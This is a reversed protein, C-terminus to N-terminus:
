LRQPGDCEQGGDEADEWRALGPLDVAAQRKGGPHHVSVRKREVLVAGVLFGADIEPEKADGPGAGLGIAAARGLWQPRFETRGELDVLLTGGDPSVDARVSSDMDGATFLKALPWQDIVEGDLGIHYLNVLDQCFLSKGDPMWCASFYSVSNAGGHKLIRFGSGDANILGIDWISDIFIYFALKSGDPAWVPGFANDTPVNKFVTTKGTALDAVAIFRSPSDGGETNFALKTGDPSIEPDVAGPAVKRAGTGDLNAVWVSNDDRAFGIKRQPGAAVAASALLLLGPLLFKKMFITSIPVEALLVGIGKRRWRSKPARRPSMIGM